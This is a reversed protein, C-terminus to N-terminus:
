FHQEFQESIRDDTGGGKVQNCWCSGIWSRGASGADLGGASEDGDGRRGCRQTAQTSTTAKGVNTAIGVRM